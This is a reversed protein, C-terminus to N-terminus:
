NVKAEKRNWLNMLASRLQKLGIDAHKETVSGVDTQCMCFLDISNESLGKKSYYHVVASGVYDAGIPTYLRGSQELLGRAHVAMDTDVDKSEETINLTNGQVDMTNQLVKIKKNIETEM